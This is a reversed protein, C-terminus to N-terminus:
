PQKSKKVPDLSLIYFEIKAKYFKVNNNIKCIFHPFIFITLYSLIFFSIVIPFKNVKKFQQVWIKYYKFFNECLLM